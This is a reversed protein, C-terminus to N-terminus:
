SQPFSACLQICVSACVLIESERNIGRVTRRVGESGDKFKGNSAAGTFYSRLKGLFNLLKPMVGELKEGGM